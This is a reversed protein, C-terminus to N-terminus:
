SVIVAWIALSWPLAHAFAQCGGNFTFHNSQFWFSSWTPIQACYIGVLSSALSTVQCKYMYNFSTYDILRDM